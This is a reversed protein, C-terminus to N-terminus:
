KKVFLEGILDIMDRITEKCAGMVLDLSLFAHPMGPYVLIRFDKGVM